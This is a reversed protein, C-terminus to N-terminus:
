PRRARLREAAWAADAGALPVDPPRGYDTSLDYGMGDYVADFAQQLDLTADPDGALLPVPVIPLPTDLGIPWVDIVPRDEARSVFVFYPAPPLPADMPPRQGSRLLDIEILHASSLLLRQRRALYQRHGMGRKNAPSLVEIATVLGHSAVDRIEVTVHPVRVPMPATIRLPLAATVATSAPQRPDAGEASPHPQPEPTPPRAVAIDPNIDAIAIADDGDVVFRRMTRVVYHPRVKPALQRAIEASLEVYVSAWEAGELYPDMGPFPSPMGSAYTPEPCRAVRNADEM